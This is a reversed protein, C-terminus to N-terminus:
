ERHLVDVSCRLGSDLCASTLEFGEIPLPEAGIDLDKRVIEFYAEDLVKGIEAIRKNDSKRRSPYLINEGDRIGNCYSVMAPRGDNSKTVWLPVSRVKMGMGELAERLQPVFRYYPAMFMKDKEPKLGKHQELLKRTFRPDGLYITEDNMPMIMMDAHDTIRQQMLDRRRSARGKRETNLDGDDQYMDRFINLKHGPLVIKDIERQCYGPEYNGKLELGMSVEFPNIGVFVHRGNACVNGGVFPKLNVPEEIIYGWRRFIDESAERTENLGLQGIIDDTGGGLSPVLIKKGSKRLPLIADRSYDHIIYDAEATEVRDPFQGSIESMSHGTAEGGKLTELCLSLAIYNIIELHHRYEESDTQGSMELFMREEIHKDADRLIDHFRDKKKENGPVRNKAGEPREFGHRKEIETLMETVAESGAGKFLIFRTDPMAAIANLIMDHKLPIYHMLAEAVKGRTDDLPTGVYRGPRGYLSM